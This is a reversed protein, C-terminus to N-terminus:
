CAKVLKRLEAGALWKMERQMGGRANIWRQVGRPYHAFMYKTWERSIPNFPWIPYYASHFGLRARSTVCTHPYALALTCASACTGDIVVRAGSAHLRDYRSRYNAIIGGRDNTVRIDDAIATTSALAILAAILLKTM